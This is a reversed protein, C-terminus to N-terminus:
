NRPTHQLYPEIDNVKVLEVDELVFHRARLQIDLFDVTSIAVWAQGFFM